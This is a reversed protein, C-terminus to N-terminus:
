SANRRPSDWAVKAAQHLVQIRQYLAEIQGRINHM